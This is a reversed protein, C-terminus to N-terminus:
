ENDKLFCPGISGNMFVIIVRKAKKNEEALTLIKTAIQGRGSAVVAPAKKSDKDYKIAIAQLNEKDKNSLEDMHSKLKKELAKRKRLIEDKRQKM